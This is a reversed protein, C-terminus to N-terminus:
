AASADGEGKKSQDQKKKKKAQWNDVAELGRGVGYMALVSVSSIVAIGTGIGLTLKFGTVFPSKM